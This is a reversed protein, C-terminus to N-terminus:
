APIHSLAADIRAYVDQIPGEGDVSVMRGRRQYEDFVPSCEEHYVRLRDLITSPNDDPRIVVNGACVDCIGDEAPPRNLMNYAAGCNECVRRGTLRKVVMNEAVQLNLLTPPELGFGALAKDLLTVQAMTRPYGDFLFRNETTGLNRITEVLVDTVLEDPVLDGREMLAKAKMGAPTQERVAKRLVDGTSIHILGRREVLLKSQTGKGSGPLGFIIINM